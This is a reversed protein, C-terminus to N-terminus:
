KALKERYQTPSEGNMEKFVRNFHTVHNFGVKYAVEAIQLNSHHLLEKSKEIRVTNLYQRFNKDNFQKLVSLLKEESLGIHSSLDRVKLEPNTYHLEIFAVINNKVEEAKDVYTASVMPLFIYKVKERNFKWLLLLLIYYILCCSLAVYLLPFYNYTLRCTEITFSIPQHMPAAYDSVLALEKVTELSYLNAEKAKEPNEEFWWDPITNIDSTAIRFHNDGQSIVLTKVLFLLSMPKSTDSYDPIFPNIRLTLRLDQRSTIKLDLLYDAADFLQAQEQQLQLGAYPYAYGNNLKFFVQLHQKDWKGKCESMGGEDVDSFPHIIYPKNALFDLDPKRQFLYICLFIVPLLLIVVLPQLIHRIRINSISSM